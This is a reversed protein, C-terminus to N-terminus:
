AISCCRRSFSVTGGLRFFFKGQSVLDPAVVHQLSSLSIILPPSGARVGKKSRHQTEVKEATQKEEGHASNGWLNCYTMRNWFFM